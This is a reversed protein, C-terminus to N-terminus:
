NKYLLQPHQLVNDTNTNTNIGTLLREPTLATDERWAPLLAQVALKADTM